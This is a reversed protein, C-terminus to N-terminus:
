RDARYRDISYSRWCQGAWLCVLVFVYIIGAGVDTVGSIYPGGFGEPVTWIILSLLIGGALATRTFFGLILGTAIATEGLAIILAFLHPDTSVLNVWLQIWSAVLVPQGSIMASVQDTFGNQFAPQWKLYADVAWVCGFAIRLVAFFKERDMRKM